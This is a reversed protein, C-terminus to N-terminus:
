LHPIIQNNRTIRRVPKVRNLLVPIKMRKLMGHCPDFRWSMGVQEVDISEGPM